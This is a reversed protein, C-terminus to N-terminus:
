HGVRYTRSVKLHREQATHLERQAELGARESRLEEENRMTQQSLELLSESVTELDAKVKKETVM